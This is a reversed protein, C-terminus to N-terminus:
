GRLSEKPVADAFSGDEEMEKMIDLGGILEGKIYMQPYTKWNVYDKLGQRVEEDKLIDFTEFDIKHEHLMAVAKKSFGCYPQEKSGKIFLMVPASNVLNRLRTNLDQPQEDEAAEAVTIAEILSGDEEMEKMIDLGGVLDGNVYLQPYTKWNSYEKLGQRVEEDSLIDFTSYDVSLDNLMAIAQRSFGCFPQEKSGKMFLMVPAFKVLSRLRSNLDRQEGAAGECPTASSCVSPEFTKASLAKIREVLRPPDAGAVSDIRRGTPDLFAVHPVQEAGLKSAIGGFVDTNAKGFRISPQDVALADLVKGLHVSPEHWPAWLLVATIGRHSAYLAHLDAESSVEVVGVAM